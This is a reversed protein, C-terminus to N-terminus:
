VSCCELMGAEQTSPETLLLFFCVTVTISTQVSAETQFMFFVTSIYCVLVFFHSPSLLKSLGYILYTLTYERGTSRATITKQLGLKSMLSNVERDLPIQEPM